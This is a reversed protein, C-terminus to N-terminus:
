QSDGPPSTSLGHPDSSLAGKAAVQDKLDEEVLSRISQHSM